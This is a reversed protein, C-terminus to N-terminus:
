KVPGLEKIVMEIGKRVLDNLSWYEKKKLLFRQTEHLRLLLSRHAM